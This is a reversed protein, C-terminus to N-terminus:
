SWRRSVAGFVAPAIAILLTIRVLHHTAVYAADAQMAVAVLGMETIGGPAYALLVQEIEQGFVGHLAVAFSVAVGLTLVTAGVSLALARLVERPAIGLFRCGMIAGLMVQAAGVMWGPPAGDSWGAVHVVGSAVMPGLLTPAPLRLRRGLWMGAIGCLTLIAIDRLDLPGKAVPVVGSVDIGLIVRFLVAMLTITIVVRAAHALIIKRDDAGREAGLLMMDVLGGPMGSFFATVRDMGGVRRYFPVVLLAALGLYLLLFSLSLGWGPLNGAMEPTFSAGLMVGIVAVVVPRVSDWPLVPARLLVAGLVAIMSGLMWPLPMALWAFVAGGAAGTVLGLAIARARHGTPADRPPPFVASMTRATM